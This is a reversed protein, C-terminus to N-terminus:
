IARGYLAYTRTAPLHRVHARFDERTLAMLFRDYGHELANRFGIAALGAAAAGHRAEPVIAVTHLIVRRPLPGGTWRGWGTPDGRLARVEASWDPIMYGFGADRGARDQVVCLHGPPLVLLVPGFLEALEEMSFPVYGPYGAWARDLLPHLRPLVEAPDREELMVLRHDGRRSARELRSALASVASRDPEQSTWRFVPSFGAAEFHAVYRPPTRPEFLWPETGFGDVLLRYARHAGGNMPGVARRCGRARLWGLAASLLAAAAPPDDACEYFGVQGVRHGDDDVLKPCVLAAVRGVPAGRRRAIFPQIEGGPVAGGAVEALTARRFPPLYDADAARVRAALDVFEELGEAGVPDVSPEGM